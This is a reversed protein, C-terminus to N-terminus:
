YYNASVDSSFKGEDVFFNQESTQVLKMQNIKM